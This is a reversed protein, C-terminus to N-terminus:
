FYKALEPDVILTGPKSGDAEPRYPLLADIPLSHGVTAAVARAVRAAPEDFRRSLDLPGYLEVYAVWQAFESHPM